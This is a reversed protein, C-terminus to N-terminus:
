GPGGARPGPAPRAPPRAAGTRTGRFLPPPAGGPEAPGGIRTPGKNQAAATASKSAPVASADCSIARLADWMLSATLLFPVAITVYETRPLTVCRSAQPATLARGRGAVGRM